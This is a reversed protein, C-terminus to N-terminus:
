LFRDPLSIFLYIKIGAATILKVGTADCEQVIDSYADVPLQVETLVTSYM